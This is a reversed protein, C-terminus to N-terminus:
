ANRQRLQGFHSVEGVDSRGTELGPTFDRSKVSMSALRPAELPVWGWTRLAVIFSTGGAGCAAGGSTDGRMLLATMSM